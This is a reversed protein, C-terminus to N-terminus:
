LVCHRSIQGQHQGVPDHHVDLFHEQGQVLYRGPDGAVLGQKVAHLHFEVGIFHHYILIELGTDRSEPGDSVARRHGASEM